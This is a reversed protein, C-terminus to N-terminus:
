RSARRITEDAATRREPLGSTLGPTTLLIAPVDKLYLNPEVAPPEALEIAHAASAAPLFSMRFRSQQNYGCGAAALTLACVTFQFLVKKQDDMIQRLSLFYLVEALRRGSKVAVNVM